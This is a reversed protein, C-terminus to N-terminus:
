NSDIAGWAAIVLGLVLLVPIGWILLTEVVSKEGILDYIENFGQLGGCGPCMATGTGLLHTSPLDKMRKFATESM